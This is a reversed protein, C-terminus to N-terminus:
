LKKFKDAFWIYGLLQVTAEILFNKCCFEVFNCNRSSFLHFLSLEVCICRGKNRGRSNFLFLPQERFGRWFTLTLIDRYLFTMGYSVGTSISITSFPCPIVTSNPVIASLRSNPTATLYFQFLFPILIFNPMKMGLERLNYLDPVTLNSTGSVARNVFGGAERNVTM